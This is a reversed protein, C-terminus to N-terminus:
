RHGSPTKYNYPGDFQEYRLKIQEIREAPWDPDFGIGLDEDIMIVTLDTRSPCKDLIMTINCARQQV